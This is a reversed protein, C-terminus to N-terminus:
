DLDKAPDNDIADTLEDGAKTLEYPIPDDLSVDEFSVMLIGLKDGERALQAHWGVLSDKLEITGHLQQGRGLIQLVEVLTFM